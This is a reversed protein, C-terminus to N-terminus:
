SGAQRIRCPRMDSTFYFMAYQSQLERALSHGRLSPAIKKEIIIRDVKVMVKVTLAACRVPM